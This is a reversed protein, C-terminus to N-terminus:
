VLLLASLILGVQYVPGILNSTSGIAKGGGGAGAMGQMMENLKANAEDFLHVAPFGIVIQVILLGFALLILSGLIVIRNMSARMGFGALIAVVLTAIYIMLLPAAAPKENKKKMEETLEAAFGAGIDEKKAKGAKAKEPGKIGEGETFDGTAAQL